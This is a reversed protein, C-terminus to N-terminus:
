TILAYRLRNAFLDEIYEIYRALIFELDLNELLM